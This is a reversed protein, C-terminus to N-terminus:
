CDKNRGHPSRRRSPRFAVYSLRPSWGQPPAGRFLDGPITRKSGRINGTIGVPTVMDTVVRIQEMLIHRPAVDFYESGVLGDCSPSVCSGGPIGRGASTSMSRPGTRRM